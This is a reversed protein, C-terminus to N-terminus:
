KFGIESWCTLDRAPNGGPLPLARLFLRREGTGPCAVEFPKMGRDDPNTLPNLEQSFLLQASGEASEEEIRFEAGPTAGGLLYAASAFGFNGKVYKANSPIRFELFGGGVLALAPKGGVQMITNTVLAEVTQPTSEFGPFKLLRSLESAANKGLQNQIKYVKCQVTDQWLSQTGPPLEISYAVARAVRNGVYLDLVDENQLQIPNALFGASLMPAPARFRAMKLGNQLVWVGLEVKPAQYFFTRVWGLFTPRMEMSLWIDSDPWKSLDVLEGPRMTSERLLELRPLSHQRAKLLLFPGESDVPEYDRLLTRFVLADELPPFRDDITTMRFLVYQPAAASSYFQENLQMLRETYAAYSQFVPRPRFNLNNFVAYAQNVGFVDVSGTGIKERLRPLQADAFQADQLENINSWYRGPRLLIHVHTALQEFPRALCYPVSGAYLLQLAFLALAVCAIASAKACVSAVRSKAPLAALAVLLTPIFGLFIVTHDRGARMFGHKWVLFVLGSWWASQVIQRWGPNRGSQRAAWFTRIVVVVFTLAVMLVATVTFAPFDETVMTQEYGRSIAIANALFPGLHTLHQGAAVWALLVGLLFGCPLILGTMAKGRVLLEISITAVTLGAAFLFTVKSLSVFVALVILSFLYISLTSGAELLGLMGWALLGIYILLETRPDANAATFTFVTLLISRWLIGFRWALLCVGSVVLSCLAVDTFLRLFPAQPCFYPTVLFGFPGYTFALDKGFQLGNNYGYGLVAAWSSDDNTGLPLRPFTILVLTILLAVLFCLITSRARLRTTEAMEQTPCAGSGPVPSNPHNSSVQSQPGYSGTPLADPRKASSRKSV